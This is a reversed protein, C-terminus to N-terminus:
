KVTQKEIFRDLDARKFFIKKGIRVHPLERSKILKFLTNRGIRLAELAERFTLLETTM